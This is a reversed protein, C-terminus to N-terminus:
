LIDPGFLHMKEAFPLFHTTENFITVSKNAKKTNENLLSTVEFVKLCSRSARVDTQMNIFIIGFKIIYM